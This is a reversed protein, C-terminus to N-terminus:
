ISDDAGDATLTREIGGGTEARVVAPVAGERLGTLTRLIADTHAGLRPAPDLRFPLESRFPPGPVRILGILPHEVHRWIGTESIAESNLVDAPSAAYSFPAGFEVAAGFVEDRTRDACWEEIIPRLEHRIFDRDTLRERLDPRGIAALFAAYNSPNVHIGVYGDRCQYLSWTALNGSGNRRGLGPHPPDNNYAMPGQIDMASAQLEQISLEVYSGVGARIRRFFGTMAAGFVAFSAQAEAQNGYAKLPERDREGMLSMQGGAAALTLATGQHGAHPGSEGYPTISVIVASPARERVQPESLGLAARQTLPLDILLVDAVGILDHLAHRADNTALDLVVSRKGGHFYIFASSSEPGAHDQPFPGAHRLPDGTPPEVKVVEAGYGAMMRGALACAIGTGLELVVLGELAADTRDDDMETM